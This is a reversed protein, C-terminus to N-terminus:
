VSTQRHCASCEWLHRRELIWARRGGCAPCRYGDPWRSAALYELCSLEDSFRGQFEVISRPFGPRAM